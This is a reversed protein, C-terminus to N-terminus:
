EIFRCLSIPIPVRPVPEPLAAVTLVVGGDAADFSPPVLMAPLALFLPTMWRVARGTAPDPKDVFFREGHLEETVRFHGRIWKLVPNTSLDPPGENAFWLM